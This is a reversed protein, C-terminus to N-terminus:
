SIFEQCIQAFSKNKNKQFTGSFRDYVPTLLKICLEKEEINLPHMMLEAAKIVGDKAGLLLKQGKETLKLRKIRKDESDEYETLLGRAALRNLMNAGSSLEMLNSFIVESKTPNGSNFISVLIGFEEVQNLGTGELAKNSYAVHYKGIKRILIMLRGDADPLIKGASKAVSDPKAAQEASQARFFDALSADPHKEEFAAWLNVLEVTNNM